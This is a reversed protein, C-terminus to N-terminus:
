VCVFRWKGDPVHRVRVCYSTIIGEEFVYQENLVTWWRWNEHGLVIYAQDLSKNDDDDKQVQMSSVVRCMRSDSEVPSFHKHANKIRFYIAYTKLVSTHNPGSLLASDKELDWSHCEILHIFCLSSFHTFQGSTENFTARRGWFTAWRMTNITATLKVLPTFPRKSNLQFRLGDM